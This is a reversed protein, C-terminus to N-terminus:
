VSGAYGNDKAKAPDYRGGTSHNPDESDFSDIKCNGNMRIGNKAIIGRMGSGYKTTNVLVTRNVQSQSISDTAYGIATVTPQNSSNIWVEYRATGITRNMYFQDGQREWGNCARDGDGIMNLHTLAEEIGAECLPMASNWVQSRVVASNQYQVLKLYSGLATGLIVTTTLTVLMASGRQSLKNLNTRM